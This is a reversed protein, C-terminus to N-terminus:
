VAIREPWGNWNEATGCGVICKPNQEQMAVMCQFRFEMWARRAPAFTMSSGPSTRSQPLASEATQL